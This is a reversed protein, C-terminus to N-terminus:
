RLLLNGSRWQQASPRSAPARTSAPETAREKQELVPPQRLAWVQYEASAANPLPQRSRKRQPQPHLLKLPKRLSDPAPTPQRFPFTRLRIGRPAAHTSQQESEAMTGVSCQYNDVVTLTVLESVKLRALAQGLAIPRKGVEAQDQRSSVRLPGM